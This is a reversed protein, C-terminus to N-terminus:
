RWATPPTTTKGGMAAEHVRPISPRTNDAGVPELVGIEPTTKTM